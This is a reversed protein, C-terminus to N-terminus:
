CYLKMTTLSFVHVTSSLIHKYIPSIDSLMTLYLLSASTNAIANSKDTKKGWINQNNLELVCTNNPNAWCNICSILVSNCKKVKFSRMRIKSRIEILMRWQLNRLSVFLLPFYKANNLLIKWIPCIISINSNICRKHLIYSHIQMKSLNTRDRDSWV